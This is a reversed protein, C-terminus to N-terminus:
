SARCLKSKAALESSLQFCPHAAIARVEAQAIRIDYGQKVIEHVIAGDAVGQLKQSAIWRRWEDPLFQKKSDM